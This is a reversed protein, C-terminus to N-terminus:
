GENRQRPNRYNSEETTTDVASTLFIPVRSNPDVWLGGQFPYPRFPQVILSSSLLLLFFELKREQPHKFVTQTSVEVNTIIRNELITALHRFKQGVHM